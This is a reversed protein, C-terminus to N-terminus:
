SYIGGSGAWNVGGWTGTLLRAAWDATLVGTWGMWLALPVTLGQWAGTKSAAASNCGSTQARESGLAQEARALRATAVELVLFCSNRQGQFWDQEAERQSEWQGPWERIVGTELVPRSCSSQHFPLLFQSTIWILLRQFSLFMPSFSLPVPTWAHRM